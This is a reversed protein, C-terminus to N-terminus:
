SVQDRMNLIAQGIKILMLRAEHSVKDNLEGRPYTQLNKPTSMGMLPM